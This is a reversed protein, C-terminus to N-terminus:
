GTAIGRFRDPQNVGDPKLPKLLSFSFHHPLFCYALIDIGIKEKYLKIRDIWHIYDKRDRFISMKENGRNYVHCVGSLAVIRKPPQWLFLKGRSIILLLIIFM